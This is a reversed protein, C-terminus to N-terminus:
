VAHRAEPLWPTNSAPRARTAVSHASYVRPFATMLGLLVWLGRYNEINITMGGMCVGLLAALLVLRPTRGPHGRRPCGTAVGLGVSLLLLAYAAFGVLGLECLVSLYSNHAQGALPAVGRLFGNNGRGVGLVPATAFSEVADVWRERRDSANDSQLSVTLTSFREIIPNDLFGARGAPIALIVVLALSAVLLGAAFRRWTAVAFALSGVAVCFALLQGRSASFLIGLVYLVLFPAIHRLPARALDRYLLSLMFSLTLHAAFANCDSMTTPNANLRLPQMSMFFRRRSSRREVGSAGVAWGSGM